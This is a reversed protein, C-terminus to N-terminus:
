ARFYDRLGGDAKTLRLPIWRWDRRSSKGDEIWEVRTMPDRNFGYRLQETGADDM